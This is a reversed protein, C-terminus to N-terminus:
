RFRNRGNKRWTALLAQMVDQESWQGDGDADYQRLLAEEAVAREAATMEGDGDPDYCEYTDATELLLQLVADAGAEARSLTGDRWSLGKLHRVQVPGPASAPAQIAAPRETLTTLGRSAAITLQYDGPPLQLPLITFEAPLCQWCRIDALPNMLQAVVDVMFGGLVVGLGILQVEPQDSGHMMALGAGVLVWGTVQTAGKIMAQTALREDMRRGGRTSAQFNVNGLWQLMDDAEGQNVSLAYQLPQVPPDLCAILRVQGYNGGRMMTPGEGNWVVALANFAM